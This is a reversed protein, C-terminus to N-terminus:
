QNENLRVQMGDSIPLSSTTVVYDIYEIDKGKIASQSDDSASVDVAIRTAYYRTGLPSSKAKIGLVYTGDSDERIANNPVVNNYGQGKEGITFFVSQGNTLDSGTVSFTVIKNKGQSSPDSKISAVTLEPTEGWWYNQVTATDGVRIKSAQANTVTYTLTFGKESLTITCLSAGASVDEGVVVNVSEIVGNVPSTVTPNQTKAELTSILREQKVISAELRTLENEHTQTDVEYDIAAKQKLYDLEAYQLNLSELDAKLVSPGNKKTEKLTDRDATAKTLTETAAEVQPEYQAKILKNTDSIMKDYSYYVLLANYKDITKGAEEVKGEYLAVNANQDAIDKDLVAIESEKRAITDEYNKRSEILSDYEKRIGVYTEYSYSPYNTYDVANIYASRKINVMAEYYDESYYIGGTVAEYDAVAKEYEARAKKVSESNPDSAYAATYNLETATSNVKKFLNYEYEFVEYEYRLSYVGQSTAIDAYLKTQNDITAISDNCSKIEATLAEKEKKLKDLEAKETNLDEQLSAKLTKTAEIDEKIGAEGRYLLSYPISYQSISENKLNELMAVRDTYVKLQSNAQDVAEQAKDVRTNAEAISADIMDFEDLSKQLTDIKKQLEAMETEYKPVNNTVREIQKQLLQLKLDTLTNRADVLETSEKATLTFLVDGKKVTYGNRVYVSEITRSQSMTVDYSQNATVTGNGAIKTTITSNAPAKVCVEPLSRELITNSFFTLILLLILFLILFNRIWIRKKITRDNM